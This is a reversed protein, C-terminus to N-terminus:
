CNNLLNFKIWSTLTRPQELKTLWKTSVLSYHLVIQKVMKPAPMMESRQTM